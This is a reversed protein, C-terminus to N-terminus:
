RGEASSSGLVDGSSGEARELLDEPDNKKERERQMAKLVHGIQVVALSVLDGSGGPGGAEESEDLPDERILPLRARAKAKAGSTGGRRYGAAVHSGVSGGRASWSQSYPARRACAADGVGFAHMLRNEWSEEGGAFDEQVVEEALTLFAFHESAIASLSPGYPDLREQSRSGFGLFPVDPELVGDVAFDVCDELAPQLMGLWVKLNVGPREWPGGRSGRFSRGVGDTVFRDQSSLSPRCDQALCDSSSGGFFGRRFQSDGRDFM